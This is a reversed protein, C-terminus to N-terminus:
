LINGQTCNKCQSEASLGTVDNYTGNPCGFETAIRTGSPCYFGTPCIGSVSSEGGVIFDYFYLEM